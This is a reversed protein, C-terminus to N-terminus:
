FKKLNDGKTALEDILKELQPLSYKYIDKEKIRGINEEFATILGVLDDLVTRIDEKMDELDSADTHQFMFELSNMIYMLYKSPAKTGIKDELEGRAIDIFGSEDWTPYKAKIDKIKAESLAVERLYDDVQESVDDANAYLAKLYEKAKPVSDSCGQKEKKKGSKTTKFVCKGIRKWPM